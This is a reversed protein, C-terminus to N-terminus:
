ELRSIRWAFRCFSIRDEMAEAAKQDSLDHWRQLLLIKFMGLAPYAPNGVADRHRRLKKKLFGKFPKWDMIQDIDDLFTKRHRRSAAAMDAFGGRRSEFRNAM